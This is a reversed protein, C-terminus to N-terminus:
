CRREACAALALYDPRSAASRHLYSHVVAGDRILFIGPMRLADGNEPGIGHGDIVGARLGRFWVFPGFLQILSGRGLGFARYLDCDVDRVRDIDGLGYHALMQAADEESAMHVVVPTVGRRKLEDRRAALDALTERCFTCGLHRLFVVMVTQGHSLSSLSEGRETEAMELYGSLVEPSLGRL